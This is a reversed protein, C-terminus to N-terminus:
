REFAATRFTFDAAADWNPPVEVQARWAVPPRFFLRTVLGTEPDRDHREEVWSPLWCVVEYVGPPVGELRFEGRGDTRAYYPHDDVFLYARMWYYGAASSLEVVGAVPLRRTRPRDPDPFTLSFFAAGDAHLMHYREGRAILRVEDGRRVFGVNAAADGQVVLFRRDRQEVRVTPHDWPRAREPAVGRLFVVAGAVGRTAPDIIPANPNARKQRPRGQEGVPVYSRVEFPPVRPLPGEWTVRGRLAGATEPDFASSTKAAAPPDSVPAYSEIEGCGALAALPLLPLWAFPPFPRWRM